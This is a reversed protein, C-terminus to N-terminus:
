NGKESACEVLKAMSDLLNRFDGCRISLPLSKKSRNRLVALESGIEELLLLTEAIVFAAYARFDVVNEGKPWLFCSDIIKPNFQPQYVQFLIGTAASGFVIKDHQRHALTDRIDKVFPWWKNTSDIVSLIPGPIKERYSRKTGSQIDAFGPLKKCDKAKLGVTSHIIAPALSDMLSGLDFHFDKIALSAFTNWSSYTESGSNRFQDQLWDILQLRLFIDSIRFSVYHFLPLLISASETITHPIQSLSLAAEIGLTDAALREFCTTLTYGEGDPEEQFLSMAMKVRNAEVLSM